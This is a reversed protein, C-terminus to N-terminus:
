CTTNIRAALDIDRKNLGISIMAGRPLLYRNALL